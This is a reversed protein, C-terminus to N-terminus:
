SLMSRIYELSESRGLAMWGSKFFIMVLQREGQFEDEPPRKGLDFM